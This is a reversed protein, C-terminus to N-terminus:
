APDPQVLANYTTTLQASVALVEQDPLTRNYVTCQALAGELGDGITLLGTLGSKNQFGNPASLFENSLITNNVFVKLLLQSMQVAVVCIQNAVFKTTPFPYVSGNDNVTVKTASLLIQFTKSGGLSFVTCDPLGFRSFVFFITTNVGQGFFANFDVPDASPSPDNRVYTGTAGLIMGAYSVGATSVFVDPRVSVTGIPTATYFYSGTSYWFELDGQEGGGVPSYNNRSETSYQVSPYLGNPLSTASTVSIIHFMPGASQQLTLISDGYTTRPDGVFAADLMELGVGAPATVLMSFYAGDRGGTPLALTTNETLTVSTVQDKVVDWDLVPQGGAATSLRPAIKTRLFCHETTFDQDGDLLAVNSSLRNDSITTGLSVAALVLAIVAIIGIFILAGSPEQM